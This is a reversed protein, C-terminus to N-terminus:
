RLFNDIIWFFFGVFFQLLVKERSNGKEIRNIGRSVPQMRNTVTMPRPFLFFYKKQLTQLPLFLLIDTQFSLFFIIFWRYATCMVTRSVTNIVQQLQKDVLQKKKEKKESEYHCSVCRFYTRKNM